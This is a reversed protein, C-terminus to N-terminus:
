SPWEVFIGISKKVPGARVASEDFNGLKVFYSLPESPEDDCSCAHRQEPSFFEAVPLWSANCVHQKIRELIEASEDLM